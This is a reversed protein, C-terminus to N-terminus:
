QPLDINVVVETTGDAQLITTDISELPVTEVPFFDEEGQYYEIDIEYTLQAIHGTGSSEVDIAARIHKFQQTVRTLEYSNIVAREIQERMAEVAAYAKMAGDEDSEGDFEQARAAIQVTTVSNFQPANRGLSFKEDFPTKVLIVPFDEERTAWDRPSYIRTGADTKGALAAVTLNRIIAANM